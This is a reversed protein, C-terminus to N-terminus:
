GLMSRPKVNNTNSHRSAGHVNATRLTFFRL